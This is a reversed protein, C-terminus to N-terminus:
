SLKWLSWPLDAEIRRLGLEAALVAQELEGWYTVEIWTKREYPEPATPWHAILLGGPRLAKVLNTVIEAGDAFRHHILVALCIIADVKGDLQEALDSGDSVLTPMRPARKRLAEIMTPSSDVGIIRAHNRNHIPIAVRGDGCGFDVVRSGPSLVQMLAKAAERGSAEYEEESVARTPHLADLPAEDWAKVVDHLNM